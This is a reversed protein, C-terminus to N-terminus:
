VASWDGPKGHLSITVASALQSGEQINDTDMGLVTGQVDRQIQPLKISYQAAVAVATKPSVLFTDDGTVKEILYDTTSGTVELKQGAALVQTARQKGSGSLTAVGTADIAVLRSAAEAFLEQEARSKTRFTLVDSADFHARLDKWQQLHPLFGGADITAQGPGPGQVVNAAGEFVRITRSTGPEPNINFGSIGALATFDSGDDSFSIEWDASDFVMINRAM